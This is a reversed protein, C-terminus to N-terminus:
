EGSVVSPFEGVEFGAGAPFRFEKIKASICAALMDSGTTNSVLHVDGTSLSPLITWGFSIRGLPDPDRRLEAELCAVIDGSRSRVVELM